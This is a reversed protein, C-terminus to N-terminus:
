ENMELVPLHWRWRIASLRLVLIVAAGVFMGATEPGGVARWGLFVASGAAAATAYLYIDPRFVLPIERTLVDRLMGGAVGTAVGLVICIPPGYGLRATKATGLMTVFALGFADPYLLWREVHKLHRALFFGACAATIGSVLFANQEVWFVPADLVLDRLTGGGTATVLGLVIVGFLDIQKGRARLPGTAASFIVALHEFFLGIMIHPEFSLPSTM